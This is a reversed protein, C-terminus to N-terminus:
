LPAPRGLRRQALARQTFAQQRQEFQAAPLAGVSAARLAQSRTQAQGAASSAATPAIRLPYIDTRNNLDVSSMALLPLFDAGASVLGQYDGLFFGGAQPAGALDFQPWVPTEVWAVGGQSTLLWAAAFLTSADATNPRLDFHMLGVLGDARVSLTPTFAAVQLDRNAATPPSWTLGADTSKSLAIADRQGGSFRADQWALWLTGDAAVAVAPIISGDRIPANNAPDVAGVARHEAVTIPPGWTSGKDASRIVRVTRATSAGSSDIQVFANVLLGRQPGAPLVIIRNGITQSVTQSVTQVGGAGAASTPSYIARVPEWSAGANVSRALMTPGNGAADLRDWVAYVYRADQTDVTLTNKDNFFDAADSALVQPAAFTRGGDLSRSVLMASRSGALLAGANFALAMMHVTGDAGIDIWPDSVREFDGVSGPAAGGCRSMPHLTRAWSQGGDFSVASQVARAGGNSWRDQQWTGLLHQPNAPNIAAFPEVEANAYLTGAGAGGGSCGPAVPTDASARLTPLTTVSVPPPPPPDATGGGGGGCSMLALSTAAGTTTTMALWRRARGVPSSNLAM